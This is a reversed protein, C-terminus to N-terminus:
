TRSRRAKFIRITRSRTTSTLSIPRTTSRTISKWRRPTSTRSSPACLRVALSALHIRGHHRGRLLTTPPDGFQFRRTMRAVPWAAFSHWAGRPSGTKAGSLSGCSRGLSGAPRVPPEPAEQEGISSQMLTFARTQPDHKGNVVSPRLHQLILGSRVAIPPLLNTRPIYGPVPGPEGPCPRRGSSSPPIPRAGKRTRM